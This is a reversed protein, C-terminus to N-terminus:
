GGSPLMVVTYARLVGISQGSYIGNFPWTAAVSLETPANENLPVTFSKEAFWFSKQEKVTHKLSPTAFPEAQGNVTVSGAFQGERKGVEIEWCILHVRVTVEATKGDYSVAEWDAQLMLTKSANSVASGSERFIEMPAATVKDADSPLVTTEHRGSGESMPADPPAQRACGALIAACLLLGAAYTKIKM